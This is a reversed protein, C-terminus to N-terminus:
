MKNTGYIVSLFTNPQCSYNNSKCLALLKPEFGPSHNKPKLKKPSRKKQTEFLDRKGTGCGTGEMKVGDACDDGGATM